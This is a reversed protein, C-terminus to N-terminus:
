CVQFCEFLADDFRNFSHLLKRLRKKLWAWFKEIPNLNPSYPPLFILKCGAEKALQHLIKKRHFSANDMIICTGPVLCALLMHVFWFEFLKSDMTGTYQLPALIKNQCKGAVIGVRKFKKGSIKGQVKQGRLSRGKDRYIYTDLGTEDVYVISASDIEKIDELFQEVKV